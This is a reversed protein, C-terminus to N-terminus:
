RLPTTLFSSLTRISTYIGNSGTSDRTYTVAFDDTKDIRRGDHLIYYVTQLEFSSFPVLNGDTADIFAQINASYGTM